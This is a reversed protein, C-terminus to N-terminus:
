KDPSSDDLTQGSVFLFSVVSMQSLDNLGLVQHWLTNVTNRKQSCFKESEERVNEGLVGGWVCVLCLNRRIDRAHTM